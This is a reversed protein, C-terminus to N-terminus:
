VWVTVARFRGELLGLGVKYCCRGRRTIVRFRGQLGELGVKYCGYRTVVRLRCRM